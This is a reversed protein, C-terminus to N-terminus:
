ITRRFGTGLRGARLVQVASALEEDEHVFSVFLRAM